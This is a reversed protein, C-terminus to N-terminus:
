HSQQCSRIPIEASACQVLIKKYTNTVDEDYFPPYGAIMEYLLVGFAWWDM